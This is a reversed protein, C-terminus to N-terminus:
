SEALGLLAELHDLLPTDCGPHPYNLDPLDYLM